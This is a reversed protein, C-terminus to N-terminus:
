PCSASSSPAPSLGGPPGIACLGGRAMRVGLVVAGAALVLLGAVLLLLALGLPAIGIRYGLLAAAVAATGAAAVWPARRTM